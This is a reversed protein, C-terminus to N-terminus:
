GDLEIEKIKHLTNKIGTNIFRSNEKVDINESNQPKILSKRQETLKQIRIKTLRVIREMIKKAVLAKINYENVIQILANQMLTDDFNLEKALNSVGRIERKYKPGWYKTDQWFRPGIKNNANLCVLEIVYNRFTVYLGPTTPSLYPHKKDQKQNKIAM